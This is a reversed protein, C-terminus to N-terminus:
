SLRNYRFTIQYIGDGADYVRRERYQFPVKASDPCEPADPGADCPGVTVKIGLVPSETPGQPLPPPFNVSTLAALDGVTFGIVDEILADPPAWLAVFFQIAGALVGAIAAAWKPLGLTQASAFVSAGFGASKIIENWIDTSVVVFTEAYEEITKKFADEGDVEFGIILMSVAGIGSGQFLVRDM